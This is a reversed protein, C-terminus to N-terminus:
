NRSRIDAIPRAGLTPFVLRALDRQWDAATRLKAGDRRFFEACVMELTDAAAARQEEKARQKTAAPDKGQQVQYLADAAEKRAAALGIGAQLTLKRPKGAFRYRVCFGKAGTPQVVVYLGRQGHDPIERRATGAKLNRIAIDTLRVM